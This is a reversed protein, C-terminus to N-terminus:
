NSIIAEGNESLFPILWLCPYIDFIERIEIEYIERLKKYQKIQKKRKRYSRLYTLSWIMSTDKNRESLKLSLIYEILENQMKKVIDLGFNSIIRFNLAELKIALLNFNHEVAFWDTLLNKLKQLESIFNEKTPFIYALNNLDFSSIAMLQEKGDKEIEKAFFDTVMMKIGKRLELEIQLTNM